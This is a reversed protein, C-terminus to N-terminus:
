CWNDENEVSKPQNGDIKIINHKKLDEENMGASETFISWKVFKDGSNKGSFSLSSFIYSM